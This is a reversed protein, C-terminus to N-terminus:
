KIMTMDKKELTVSMKYFIFVGLTRKINVCTFHVHFILCMNLIDDIKKYLPTHLLKLDTDSMIPFYMVM